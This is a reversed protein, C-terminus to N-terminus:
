KKYAEYTKNDICVTGSLTGGDPCYYHAPGFDIGSPQRYCHGNIIVDGMITCTLKASYTKNRYCMNGSLVDGDDCYYKSSNCGTIGLIIFGLSLSIFLKKM